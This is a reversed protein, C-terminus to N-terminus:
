IIKGEDYYCLLQTICPDSHYYMTQGIAQQIDFQKINLHREHKLLIKVINIKFCECADLLFSNNRAYMNAGQQLLEHTSQSLGNRISTRLAEDRNAHINIQKMSCLVMICKISQYRSAFTLSYEDICKSIDEGKLHLYQLIKADDKSLAHILLSTVDDLVLRYEISVNRVYNLADHSIYSGSSLSANSLYVHEKHHLYGGIEYLIDSQQLLKRM